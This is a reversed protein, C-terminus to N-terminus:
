LFGSGDVEVGQGAGYDGPVVLITAVEAAEVHHRGVGFLRVAAMATGLFMAIADERRSMAGTSHEQFVTYAQTPIVQVEGIEQSAIRIIPLLHLQLEPLRLDM